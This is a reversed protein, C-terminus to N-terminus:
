WLCLSFCLPPLAAAVSRAHYAYMCEIPEGGALRANALTEACTDAVFVAARAEDPPWTSPLRMRAKREEIDGLVQRYATQFAEVSELRAQTSRLRSPIAKALRSAWWVGCEWASAPERGTSRDRSCRVLLLLVSLILLTRKGMSALALESDPLVLRQEDLNDCM